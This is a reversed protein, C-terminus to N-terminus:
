QVTAQQNGAQRMMLYVIKDRIEKIGKDLEAVKDQLERDDSAALADLATKHQALTKELEVSKKDSEGITKELASIKEQADQISKAAARFESVSSSSSGQIKHVKQSLDNITNAYGQVLYFNYVSAAILVLFMLVVVFKVFM